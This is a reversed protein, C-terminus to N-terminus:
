AQFFQIITQGNCYTSNIWYALHPSVSSDNLVFLPPPSLRVADDTIGILRTVCHNRFLCRVLKGEDLLREHDGVTVGAYCTDSARDWTEILLAYFDRCSKDTEIARVCKINNNDLMLLAPLLLLLLRFSDFFM